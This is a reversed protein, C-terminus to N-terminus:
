DAEAPEFAKSVLLGHAVMEYMKTKGIGLARAKAESSASKPAAFYVLMVRALEYDMQHFCRHVWVLKKPCGSVPPGGPASGRIGAGEGEDQIRKLVNTKTFGNVNAGSLYAGYQYWVAKLYDVPEDSM